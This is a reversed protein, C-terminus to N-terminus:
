LAEDPGPVDEHPQDLERSQLPYAACTRDCALVRRRRSEGPGKACRILRDDDLLAASRRDAKPGALRSPVYVLTGRWLRRFDRAPERLHLSERQREPADDGGRSRYIR